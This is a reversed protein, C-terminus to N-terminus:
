HAEHILGLISLLIVRAPNQVNESSWNKALLSKLAFPNPFRVTHDFFCIQAFLSMKPESTVRFFFKKQLFNPTRM